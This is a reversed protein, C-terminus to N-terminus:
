KRPELRVHIGNSTTLSIGSIITPKFSPDAVFKYRKMLHCIVIGSEIQAFTNGICTRTGYSFPFFGDKASTYDNGRGEFREPLFQLPNEWLDPDRNIVFLPMLITTDKPITMNTEKFHVDEAAVRTVGPIISFYRLTEMMVYSLYKVEAYDDPHITDKNQIHPLLQQYLIEQKDPNTALLYTLYSLFFSTTDHGACILTMLHDDLEKKSLNEKIMLSLPDDPASDQAVLRRREEVIPEFTQLLRSKACDANYVDPVISPILPLNFTIIRGVANSGQSIDHCLEIEYKPNASFDCSCAFRMFNRLAVVAFYQEMNIVKTEGSAPLFETIARLTVDNITDAFKLVNSRIFYKGLLVRDKRHKEGNSTVLGEGFYRGFKVSYDSGKYFTKPDSLIRRIMIPECVVLFSKTFNFFTFVRGYKARLNCLYRLFIVAKPDYCNGLIPLALPGPFKRFKWCERAFLVLSYLVLGVVVAALASLVIMVAAM